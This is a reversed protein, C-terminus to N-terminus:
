SHPFNASKVAAEIAADIVDLQVGKWGHADLYDQLADLAYEKKDDILEAAGAQEAANVVLEAGTKLVSYLSPRNAKVTEALLRLKTGIWTVAMPVLIAILALSLKMVFESWFETM